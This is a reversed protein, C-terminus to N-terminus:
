GVSIGIPHDQYVSLTEGDNGLYSDGEPKRCCPLYVTFTSGRGLESAVEIRGQHSTVIRKVISLGLGTGGTQNSHGNTLQEFEGFLRPLDEKAIGPGTDTVSICVHDDRLGTAITIEGMEIFKIANNLLNVLVQSIADRDCEVLPSATDLTTRLKVPKDELLPEMTESAEKIIDNLCNPEFHYQVKGAQIKQFDLINNILRALRDVNRQAIDLYQVQEECVPGVSGRRVVGIGGKIATLPTRLEHSVMSLFETRVRLAHKLREENKMREKSYTLSRILLASDVQGKVLYDQAGEQLVHEIIEMDDDMGSLIVIAVDPAAETVTAFTDYGHSDPLNLDLLVIDIATSELAELGDQLRKVWKVDFPFRDDEHLMIEILGADGPNDEVLLVSTKTAATAM